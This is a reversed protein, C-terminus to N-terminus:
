VGIKRFLIFNKQRQAFRWLRAVPTSLRPRFADFFEHAEAHRDRWM